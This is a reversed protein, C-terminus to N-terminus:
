GVTDIRGTMPRRPADVRIEVPHLSHRIAGVRRGLGDIAQALEPATDELRRVAELQECHFHCSVSDGQFNMGVDVPGLHRMDLRLRINANEPDLEQEGDRKYLRLEGSEWGDETKIPLHFVYYDLSDSRTAPASNLMQNAELGDALERLTSLLTMLTEREAGSSGPIAEAVQAQMRAVLARIDTTTEAAPAGQALRSELSRGFHEVIRALQGALAAVPQEIPTTALSSTGAAAPHEISTTALSSTGATEPSGTSSSAAAPGTSAGTSAGAAAPPAGPATTSAPVTGASAATAEAPGTPTSSAASPEGTGTAPTAPMGAPVSPGRATGPDLRPFIRVLQDLARAVRPPLQAPAGTGAPPPAAPAAGPRVMSELRGLLEAPNEAGALISAALAVSTPTVPLDRAQLFIVADLNAPSFGGAARAGSVLRAINEPNLPQGNLILARVSALNEPNVPLSAKQLLPELDKDTLSTMDPPMVNDQAVRFVIRRPSLESVVLAIREGAQLPVQAQANVDMGRFRITVEGGESTLVVASLIMGEALRPVVASLRASNGAATISPLNVYSFDVIAM